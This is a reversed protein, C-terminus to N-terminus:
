NSRNWRSIYSYGDISKTSLFLKVTSHGPCPFDSIGGKELHLRLFVRYLPFVKHERYQLPRNLRRPVCRVGQFHWSSSYLVLTVGALAWLRLYWVGKPSNDAHRTQSVQEPHVHNLSVGGVDVRPGADEDKEVDKEWLGHYYVHHLAVNGGGPPDYVKVPLYRM